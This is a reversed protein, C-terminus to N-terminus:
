LFEQKKNVYQNLTIYNTSTDTSSEDIYKLSRFRVNLFHYQRMKEIALVIKRYRKVCILKEKKIQRLLDLNHVTKRYDKLSVPEIDCCFRLIDMLVFLLAYVVMFSIGFISLSSSVSELLVLDGNKIECHRGSFYNGCMCTYNNFGEICQGSNACTVNVCSLNIDCLEGAFGPQCVCAFKGYVSLSSVCTSNNMCNFRACATRDKECFEGEFGLKCKCNYQKLNFENGRDTVTKPKCVSNNSCKNNLCRLDKKM